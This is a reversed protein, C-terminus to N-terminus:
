RNCEHQPPAGSSKGINGADCSGIALAVIVLYYYNAFAQKSLAFFVILCIGLAAHFGLPRRAALAICLAMTAFLAAFPLWVWQAPNTPHAYVLFSLADPRYPQRTQLTIASDWFAQPNWLVLPLTVVAGVIAARLAFPIIQRITWPRPLLLLGLPAMGLMYQKSVLLLGFAYPLLHPRRSRCYCTLALLLVVYTETWAGMTVLTTIPTFAVLVGSISGTRGPASRSILVAAAITCALGAYRVDGLFYGPLAMFLTIPLYPYGFQLIGNVSVGPGYFAASQAASYPDTFRINYPNAGKILADCSFQQFLLVDLRSEGLQRILLVGIIAQVLIVLPFSWKGFPPRASCLSGAIAAATALLFCVWRIGTIGLNGMSDDVPCWILAAFQVCVCALLARTLMRKHCPRPDVCVSLLAAASVATAIALWRIALPSITGSACFNAIGLATAAMALLAATFASPSDTQQGLPLQTINTM